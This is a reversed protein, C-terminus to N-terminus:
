LLNYENNTSNQKQDQQETPQHMNSTQDFGGCTHIPEQRVRPDVEQHYTATGQTNGNEYMRVGYGTEQPGM